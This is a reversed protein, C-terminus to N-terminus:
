EARSFVRAKYRDLAVGAMGPTLGGSIGQRTPSPPSPPTDAESFQGSSTEGKHSVRLGNRWNGLGLWRSVNRKLTKAVKPKEAKLSETDESARACNPEPGEM